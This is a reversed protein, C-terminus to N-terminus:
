RYRGSNESSDIGRRGDQRQVSLAAEGGLVATAFPITLDHKLDSGKSAPAARRGGGGRGRSFQKFIDAFGGAGESEYGGGGGGGFLDGLDNM